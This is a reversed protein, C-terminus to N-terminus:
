LYKAFMRMYSDRIDNITIDGLLLKNFLTSQKDIQLAKYVQAKENINLYKLQILSHTLLSSISITALIESVDNSILWRKFNKYFTKNKNEKMFEKLIQDM